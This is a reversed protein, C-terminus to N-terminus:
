GIDIGLLKSGQLPGPLILRDIKNTIKRAEYIAEMVESSSPWSRSTQYILQTEEKTKIVKFYDSDGGEDILKVAAESWIPYIVTRLVWPKGAVSFEFREKM